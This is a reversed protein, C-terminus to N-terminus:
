KIDKRRFMFIGTLNVALIITTSYFCLLAPRQLIRNQMSSGSIQYSQGGPLFDNLFQYIERQLGKIYDPNPIDEGVVVTDGSMSIQPLMEPQRLKAALYAALVLFGIALLVNVISAHSKSSILMGCLNYISAYAACVFLMIVFLWFFEDATMSPLGCFVIGIAFISGVSVAAQLVSVMTCVIFNSLYISTRSWGTVLKNRVTGEEYETGTFLSCFLSFVIGTFIIHQFLCEALVEPPLILFNKAHRYSDSFIALGICILALLGGWFVKSKQVRLVDARLLKRM